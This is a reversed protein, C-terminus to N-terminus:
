RRRLFVRRQNKDAKHASVIRAVKLRNLVTIHQADDPVLPRVTGRDAIVDYPYPMERLIARLDSIPVLTTAALLNIISRASAGGARLFEIQEPELGAQSSIAYTAAARIDPAGGDAAYDAIDALVTEKLAQSILDSSFFSRLYGAPLVSPVIFESIQKSRTCAFEWTPWDAVLPSEFTEESDALLQADILVGVLPGSEPSLVSCPLPTTLELSRAIAVRDQPSSITDRASIIEIAIRIREAPEIQEPASIAMDAILLAAIEDDIECFVDLYALLNSASLTMRKQAALAPWASQPVEDLNVIHCDAAARQVIAGVVGEDEDAARDVETLVASFENSTDVSVAEHESELVALYDTLRALTTSHVQPSKARITDLALSPQSTLDQLNEATLDYTGHHIVRKIAAASLGKVRPIRVGLRAMADVSRAGLENGNKPETILSPFNSYHDRVYALVDATTVYDVDESLESLAADVLMPREDLSAPADEVLYRLVDALMPALLQTFKVQASGSQIYQDSFERDEPAWTAIEAIMMKAEVERAELLHDLVGINYAARDRFIDTGKDTIISEVDAGNLSYHVDAQGRDLAHVIFNQADHRLHDGYYSSIYLAFYDNLYGGSVLERALKSKLLRATAEAFSEQGEGYAHTFDTRRYVEQWSHHRLFAIDDLAHNKRIQEAAHDVNAWATTDLTLGMLGELRVFQMPVTGNRQTGINVTHEAATLESWFLPSRITAADHTTPGIQITWQDAFRPDALSRAVAELRDGLKKARADLIGAREINANTNRLRDGASSISADVVNRWIKHLNDLESNGFRIAEFDGMHVSKYLIIAFLRDADLGPMRNPTHLLRSAYVDFENRMSKILRMDAVHQAALNVLAASVGAGDLARAMLDRANRHTIFPVVPIVLDFFKTRNARKVEDDAADEGIIENGLKEFVSDRLAYIFKVEPRPQKWRGPRKALRRRQVQESGNLLSNLARLTEFIHIDQFRDIDEFVVIDRGSQEFYYVIEDMYQDFFSSSTASLSVTAPGASFRELFVRNHTAWRVLYVLGCLVLLIMGYAAVPAIELPAQGLSTVQPQLLQLVYLAIGLAAGGGVAIISERGWAFRSIRRFRSGRTRNPADRYLIQKVIEKQIANTKTRAAPNSKSENEAPDVEHGVTSLSLQLVRDEFPDLEALRELISSKGTGYPGTLAINRVDPQETIAHVLASVYVGHQDEDYEPALSRLKLPDPGPSKSAATM